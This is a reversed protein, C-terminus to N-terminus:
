HSVRGPGWELNHRRSLHQGLETTLRNVENDAWENQKKAADLEKQIIRVRDIVEALELSCREDVEGQFVHVVDNDYRRLQSLANAWARRDSPTKSLTFTQLERTAKGSSDDCHKIVLRTYVMHNGRRSLAWGGEKLVEEMSGSQLDHQAAVSADGCVRQLSMAHASQHGQSVNGYACVGNNAVLGDGNFLRSQEEVEVRLREASEVEQEAIRVAMQAAERLEVARERADCLRRLEAAHTETLHADGLQADFSIASTMAFSLATGAAEKGSGWDPELREQTAVKYAQLQQQALEMAAKALVNRALSVGKISAGAREM